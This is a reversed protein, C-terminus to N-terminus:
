VVQDARAARACLQPRRAFISVAWDSEFRLRRESELWNDVRLRRALRMLFKLWNREKPTLRREFLSFAFRRIKWSKQRQRLLIRKQNPWADLDQRKRFQNKKSALIIHRECWWKVCPRIMWPRGCGLMFKRRCGAIISCLTPLRFIRGFIPHPYPWGLQLLAHFPECIGLVELRPCTLCTKRIFFYSLDEQFLIISLSLDM